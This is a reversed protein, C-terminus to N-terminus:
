SKDILSQYLMKYSDIMTELYFKKDLSITLRDKNKITWALGAILDTIDKYRAIYWNITHQVVESVGGVNFSVVPCQCAISELVILPCNDALTPYLFIDAMSFYEAMEEAKLYSMERYNHYPKRVSANWVTIFLVDKRNKYKQYIEDVYGLWKMHTKSGSWALSLIVIKEPPINYKKRLSDKERTYFIKTDVGNYITQLTDIWCIDRVKQTAWQSVGVFHINNNGFTRMRQLFSRRTKYPFYLNYNDNGATLRDDHITMIVKKEKAIYEIAKWDFYWWQPCHIHFIDASKYHPNDKLKKYWYYWPRLIDFVFNLGVWFKYWYTYLLTPKTFFVSSKQPDKKQSFDYWVLLHNDTNIATLLEAVKASGTRWWIHNISFIKYM